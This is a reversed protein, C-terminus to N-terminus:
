GASAGLTELPISDDLISTSAARGNNNGARHTPHETSQGHHLVEVRDRGGGKAAYLARDAGRQLSEGDIAHEPLVAIGISVTIVREVAPLRIAAVAVRIKEAITMAGPADTNPLLVIFEEGGYRGVFDSSRVSANLAGAVAALVQDGRGHGYQDNIDKFHDLDCMLAALPSVTRLSLAVMRRLSDDIARRNPLGTLGDTAARLEAGALNRLNGIVPAAQTVADRISRQDADSLTQRHTSLVSGIVEGSVILPLCSTQGPCQSCVPCPLLEAQDSTTHRRATRIALCSRPKASELAVALPSSPDVPTVAQLRDASNNRNLITVSSGVVAHELYRRLLEHADQENETLQLADILELKSHDYSDEAQRRDALDDLVRGLEALEDTGDPHLRHSYDGRGVQAAFASYSLTRPLVSRILWVVTAISFLLGVVGALLMLGISRDYDRVAQRYATGAEDTEQRTIAKAATVAASFTANIDNEVTVDAAPTEATPLQDILVAEFRAWTSNIVQVAASETPNQASLAAVPGLRAQVAPLLETTLETNLRQRQAPDRELLLELSTRQADQLASQLATVDLTARLHNEYLNHAGQRGTQLGYLGAATVAGLAPLLVALVLGFRLSIRISYRSLRM